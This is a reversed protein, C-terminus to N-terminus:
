IYKFDVKISELISLILIEVLGFLNQIEMLSPWFSGYISMELKNLDEEILGDMWDISYM